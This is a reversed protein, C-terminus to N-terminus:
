IHLSNSVSIHLELNWMIVFHVDWSNIGSSSYYLRSCYSRMQRVKRPFTQMLSQRPQSAIALGSLHTLNITGYQSSPPFVGEGLTEFQCPLDEQPCKAVIFTLHFQQQSGGPACHQIEVTVPQTFVYGSSLWYLGSVPEAHRPFDFQGSISAKVHVQCQDVGPPLANEPFCVKFGHNLWEFRQAKGTYTFKHDMVEVGYQYGTHVPFLISLCRTLFVLKSQQWVFTFTTYALKM